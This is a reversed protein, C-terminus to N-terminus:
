IQEQADAQRMLIEKPRYDKRLVVKLLTEPFRRMEDAKFVSMERMILHPLGVWEIDGDDRDNLFVHIVELSPDRPHRLTFSREDEVVVNYERFYALGEKERDLFRTVGEQLASLENAEEDANIMSFITDWGVIAGSERDFSVGTDHEVGSGTFGFEDSDPRSQESAKPGEVFEMNYKCLNCILMGQEDKHIACNTCIVNRCNEKQCPIQVGHHTTDDCIQRVTPASDSSNSLM